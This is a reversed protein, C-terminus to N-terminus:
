SGQSQRFADNWWWSHGMDPCRPVQRPSLPTLNLQARSGKSCSLYNVLTLKPCYSSLKWSVYNFSPASLGSSSPFFSSYLISGLQFMFSHSASFSDWVLMSILICTWGSSLLTMSVHLFWICLIHNNCFLKLPSLFWFLFHFLKDETQEISVYKKNFHLQNLTNHYIRSYM